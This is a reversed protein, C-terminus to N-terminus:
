DAPRPWASWVKWQQPTSTAWPSTSRKLIPVMNRRDTFEGDFASM